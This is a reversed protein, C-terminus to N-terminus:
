DITNIVGTFLPVDYRNSITFGFARDIIFDNYVTTYTQPGPASTANMELITVAAGELGKEDVEIKATHIIRNCFVEDDLLPTFNCQNTFLDNVGLDKIVQQIDSNFEASFAPFFCRTKYYIYNENDVGKYDKIANITAINEATMIQNVSVGEDPLIFKLKYGNATTTYFTSYGDGDIIQGGFYNGILLRKTIESGDYNTFTYYKDSFLLDTELEWVDKLYLTNILLILTDTTFQYDNDILGQTQNKIFKRVDDNATKNDGKFDAHYSYACFKEALSTITDDKVETDKNIWISNGFKVMAYTTDEYKYEVNLLSYIIPLNVVLEDYTADLANLLEARTNDGACEVALALAMYVSIPSIVFNEGQKTKYLRDTLDACFDNVKANFAKFDDGIYDNYNYSYTSNPQALLTSKIEEETYESNNPTCTCATFSTLIMLASLAGAILKKHLKM